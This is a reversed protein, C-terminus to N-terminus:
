LALAAIVSTLSHCADIFYVCSLDQVASAVRRHFDLEPQVVIGHSSRDNRGAGAGADVFRHFQPVAVLLAVAALAYLLSDIVDVVDDCRGDYAHVDHVLGCQVRQEQFQVARLVLAIQAGVGDQANGHGCGVSGCVAQAQGQILIQAADVGLDQGNGHHVDHVAAFVRVVGQVNLFEHDKGYAGLAEGFRQAHASLGEM